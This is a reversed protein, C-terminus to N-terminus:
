FCETWYKYKESRCNIKQLYEKKRKEFTGTAFSKEMESSFLNMLEKGLSNYLIPTIDKFLTQENLLKNKRNWVVVKVSAHEM